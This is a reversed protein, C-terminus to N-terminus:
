LAWPPVIPEEGPFTVQTGVPVVEIMEVPEDHPNGLSIETNAPVILVDGPSLQHPVRDLVIEVNGSLVLAIYERDIVGSRPPLRPAFTVHWTCLEKSGRSPAAYCRVTLHPTEPPPETGPLSYTLIPASSGSIVPM